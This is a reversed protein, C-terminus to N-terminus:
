AINNLVICVSKYTCNNNNMCLGLIRDLRKCYLVINHLHLHTIILYMIYKYACMLTRLINLCILNCLVPLCLLYYLTFTNLTTM